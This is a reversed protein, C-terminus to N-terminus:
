TPGRGFVLRELKYYTYFSRDRISGGERKQSSIRYAPSLGASNVLALWGGQDLADGALRM